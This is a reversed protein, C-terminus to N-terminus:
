CSQKLVRYEVKCVNKLNQVELLRSDFTVKKLERLDMVETENPPLAPGRKSVRIGNVHIIKTDPHTSAYTICALPRTHV